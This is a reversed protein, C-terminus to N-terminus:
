GNRNRPRHRKFADLSVGREKYLKGLPSANIQKRTPPEEGVNPIRSNSAKTEARQLDAVIRDIVKSAPNKSAM